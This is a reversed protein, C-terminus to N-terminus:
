CLCIMCWVDKMTEVLDWLETERLRQWLFTAWHSRRLWSALAISPCVFHSHVYYAVSKQLPFGMWSYDTKSQRTCPCWPADGLFLPDVLLSTELIMLAEWILNYNRWQWTNTQMDFNYKQGTSKIYYAHMSESNM